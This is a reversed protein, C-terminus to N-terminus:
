STVPPATGGKIPLRLLPPPDRGGVVMMAIGPGLVAREKEKALNRVVPRSRIVRAKAKEKGREGAKERVPPPLKRKLPSIIM